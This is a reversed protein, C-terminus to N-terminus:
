AKKKFNRKFEELHNFLTVVAEGKKVDVKEIDEYEQLLPTVEKKILPIVRDKIKQVKLALKNRERELQEKDGRLAYHRKVMKEPIAKIKADGIQDSIKQLEGIKVNIEAKLKEGQEILEAPNVKETIKKEKKDLSAIEKEIKVIEKSIRRGENVLQEKETLYSVIKKNKLIIM